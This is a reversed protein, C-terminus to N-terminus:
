SHLKLEQLFDSIREVVAELQCERKKPRFVKLLKLNGAMDKETYASLLLGAQEFKKAIDVQHDNVVEGFKRLRPMVLLPKEVELAATITGM